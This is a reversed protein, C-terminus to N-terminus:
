RRLLEIELDAEEPTMRWTEAGQPSRIPGIVSNPPVQAFKMQIDIALKGPLHGYIALAVIARASRREFARQIHVPQLGTRTALASVLFPLDGHRVADELLTGTLASAAQLPPAKPTKPLAVPKGLKNNAAQVSLRDNVMRNLRNRTEPDMDGRAALDNLLDTAVFRAIRLAANMPLQPRNVLPRHWALHQPAREIVLDLTAERIHASQNNLLEAIAAVDDTEVIADTVAAALGKRKSIASLAGQVPASAIISLLDSDSLVPSYQLIPAAVSLDSDRALMTILHPPADPLDQLSESIIRRVVVMSDRALTGIIALTVRQVGDREAESLNPLLRSLKAALDARVGEDSDRALVTDIAPGTSPNAALARRVAASQDHALHELIEPRMDTRSAILRRNAEDLDPKTEPM